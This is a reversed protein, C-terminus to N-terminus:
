KVKEEAENMISTSVDHDVHEVKGDLANAAGQAANIKELVQACEEESMDLILRLAKSVVPRCDGVENSQITDASPDANQKSLLEDIKADVTARSEASLRSYMSRITDNM